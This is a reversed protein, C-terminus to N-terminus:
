GSASSAPTNTRSALIAVCTTAFPSITREQESGAVCLPIHHTSPWDGPKQFFPYVLDFPGLPILTYGVSALSAVYTEKPQLSPVSVQIDIIPKAALGPVATSGVHEVRLALDGLARRIIPTEGTFSTPWHPDYPVITIMGNNALCTM